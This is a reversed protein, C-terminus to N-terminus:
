CSSGEKETRMIGAEERKEAAYKRVSVWSLGLHLLYGATSAASFLLVATSANQGTYYAGLVAGLIMATRIVERLLHLDQREMVDITTGVANAVFQGLYMVSMLRIFDASETWQEGFLPGFVLPAIGVVLVIIAAGAVLVQLVTRRFLPVLRAPDKQMYESSEALYVSRVASVLLTMPSGLVRQGLAFWGAVHAGYFSALLVTPLYIGISNLVNSALSLQPFRRYRWAVEKLGGGKMAAKLGGM